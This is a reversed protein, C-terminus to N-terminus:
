ALGPMAAPKQQTADPWATKPKKCATVPVPVGGIDAHTKLHEEVWKYAKRMTQHDYRKDKGYLRVWQDGCARKEKRIFFDKAISWMSEGSRKRTVIEAIQRCENDDWVHGRKDKKKNGNKDVEGKELVIRRMGWPVHHCYVLNNKKRWALAERVAEKHNEMWFDAFIAGMFVFARGAACSLDLQAGGHDKLVILRIGRDVLESVAKTMRWPNRELRDLRWIILIDGEQMNELLYVFKPRKNYPIKEASENELVIEALTGEGDAELQAARDRFRAAQCKPSDEQEDTSSRAYGWINPTSV